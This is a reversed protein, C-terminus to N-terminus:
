EITHGRLAQWVVELDVKDPNGAREPFHPSFQKVCSNRKVPKRASFHAIVDGVAVGQRSVSFSVTKSCERLFSM